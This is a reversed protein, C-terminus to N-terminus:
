DKQQNCTDPIAAEMTSKLLHQLLSHAQLIESYNLQRIERSTFRELLLKLTPLLEVDKQVSIDRLLKSQQLRNNKDSQLPLLHSVDFGETGQCHEDATFDDRLFKLSNSTKELEQVSLSLKHVEQLLASSHELVSNVDEEVTSVDKEDEEEFLDEDQEDESHNTELSVPKIPSCSVEVSASLSANEVNEDTCVKPSKVPTSSAEPNVIVPVSTSTLAPSVDQQDCPRGQAVECSPPLTLQSESDPTPARQHVTTTTTTTITASVEKEEKENQLVSAEEIDLKISSHPSDLEPMEQLFSEKEENIQAAVFSPGGTKEGADSSPASTKVETCKEQPEASQAKTKDQLEASPETTKDQAEASQAKTKDQAEASQAKTKDQAEASQAKTKDQAEASQAKTKDQAEASQAKIKDQPEASQAKMKDQLEASPETTKDQAEASPETTKDQAEASPETTKDQAEASQAKMKDQLEASPETTKDQAEASPETTKDQAEASPETTKDQAEASQAKIKEQPEASQAKTKDQLEASPETTKDQAEASPETTKDQAEASPAKTKEQPETSTTELLSSERDVVTQAAPTAITKEEAESSLVQGVPNELELSKMENSPVNKGDVSNCNGKSPDNKLDSVVATSAAAMAAAMIEGASTNLLSCSAKDKKTDLQKKFNALIKKVHPVKPSRVPLNHIDYESLSALDGVTHLKRAKLLQSLGRFWMSSTLQPLILSIPEQCSVLEAFVPGTSSLQSEQTSSYSSQSSGPSNNSGSISNSISDRKKYNSLLSRRSSRSSCPTLRRKQSMPSPLTKEEFIPDAFSVRRQKNPPSPTEGNNQLRKKLIGTTPSYVSSPSCTASPCSEPTDCLSSSLFQKESSFIDTTASTYDDGDVNTNGHNPSTKMVSKPTASKKAGSMSCNSVKIGYVFSDSFKSPFGRNGSRLRLSKKPTDVVKSLVPKNESEQDVFNENVESDVIAAPQLVSSETECVTMSPSADSQTENQSDQKLGGCNDDDDGEFKESIATLSSGEDAMMIESANSKVTVSQAGEVVNDLKLEEEETLDPEVDQKDQKIKRKEEQVLDLEKREELNLEVEDGLDSDFSDRKHEPEVVDSKVSEAEEEIVGSVANKGQEVVTPMEQDCSFRETEGFPCSNISDGNDVATITECYTKDQTESIKMSDKANKEVYTLKKVNSNQKHAPSKAKESVNLVKRAKTEKGIKRRSTSKNAPNESNQTAKKRARLIKVCSRTRVPSIRRDTNQVIKTVKLPKRKRSGTIPKSVPLVDAKHLQKSPSITGCPRDTIKDKDCVVQNNDNQVNVSINKELNPKKIESIRENSDLKRKQSIAATNQNPIVNESDPISESESPLFLESQCVAKGSTKKNSIDKSNNQKPIVELQEEKTALEVESAEKLEFGGSSSIASNSDANEALDFSLRRINVSTNVERTLTKVPTELVSEGTSQHDSCMKIPSQTEEVFLNSQVPRDSPQGQEALLSDNTLSDQAVISTVHPEMLLPVSPVKLSQSTCLWNQLSTPQDESVNKSTKGPKISVPEKNKTLKTKAPSSSPQIKTYPELKVGINQPKEACEPVKECSVAPSLEPLKTDKAFTVRKTSKGYNEQNSKNTAILNYQSSTEDSSFSMVPSTIMHNSYMSDQSQDLSNYMAPLCYKREKLVEKQHQTLIRRKNQPPEIVVFDQDKMDGISLRKIVSAVPKHKCLISPKKPSPINKLLSGHMKNPSVPAPVVEDSVQSSAQSYQSTPTEEIVHIETSIWGPLRIVMKEKVKALARRLSDTYALSPTQSFTAKWLQVTQNKIFRRPHLFNVELLPALVNLFDTDYMGKYTNQISNIVDQWLKDHKPLSSSPFVKYTAKALVFLSSVAKSTKELLLPVSNPSTIESFLTTMIGILHRAASQLSAFNVTQKDVSSEYEERNIQEFVSNTVLVVLDIVSNLNKLPNQKRKGGWKGPSGLAFSTNRSHPSFDVFSLLTGCIMTLQELFLTDTKLKQSGTPLHLDTVILHSLHECTVNPAANVVLAALNAFTRYINSWTKMLTKNVTAFLQNGFLWKVPFFLSRYLCTFNHELADGQNIENNKSIYDLLPNVLCSWLRWLQEKQEVYTAHLDLIQIVAQCYELVGSPNAMGLEIMSVFLTLYNETYKEQSVGEKLMSPTLLLETLFLAPTGHIKEGSSINYATSCLIKKPLKTVALFLKYKVSYPAPRSLILTSFDCLFSSLADRTDTKLGAELGLKLHEVFLSWIYVVLDDPADASCVLEVLSYAIVSCQKLFLAPGMIINSNLPELDFKITPYDVHAPPLQLLHAIAELGKLQLSPFSPWLTGQSPLSISSSVSSLTPTNRAGQTWKGGVCFRLLPTCVMDFNGLLKTDLKRVFYWWVELKKLAVNETKANNIKFVQMLLKIRKQDGIIAPNSAFNEILYKWASFAEYKINPNPSKFGLEVIPLLQNIFVCHLETGLLQVLLSWVRLVYVENRSQFLKKLESAMKTKVDAVMSAVLGNPNVLLAPLAISLAQLAKERIRIAGHGLLSYVHHSWNIAKENMKKPVQQLLRVVLNVAEHEVLVSQSLPKSFSHELADLIPNIQNCVIDPQLVQNALCWLARTCVVKDETELACHCLNRIVENSDKLGMSSIITQNQLCLGLVQLASETLESSSGMIDSQILSIVQKSSKAVDQVFALDNTEMKLKDSFTTYTELRAKTTCDPSRLVSLINTLKMEENAKTVLM